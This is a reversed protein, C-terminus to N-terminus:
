FLSSHHSLDDSDDQRINTYILPLECLRALLDLCSMVAVQAGRVEMSELRTAADLERSWGSVFKASTIEQIGSHVGAEIFLMLEPENERACIEMRFYNYEDRCHIVLEAWELGIARAAATMRKRVYANLTVRYDQESYFMLGSPALRM